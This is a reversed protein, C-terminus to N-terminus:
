YHVCDREAPPLPARHLFTKFRGLHLDPRTAALRSIDVFTVGLDAALWRMVRPQARWRRWQGVFPGEGPSHSAELEAAEALLAHAHSVPHTHNICGPTAATPSVLVISEPALGATERRARAIRHLSSNLLTVFYPPRGALTPVKPSGDPKDFHHGTSLM